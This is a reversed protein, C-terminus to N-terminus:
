LHRWHKTVIHTSSVTSPKEQNPRYPAGRPKPAPLKIKRGSATLRTRRLVPKEPQAPKQTNEESEQGDEDDDFPNYGRPPDSSKGSGEATEGVADDDDDDFPNYGAREETTTANATPQATTKTPSNPSEDSESDFPNYGEKTESIIEALRNTPSQPTDEDDDDFPNYAKSTISSETKNSKAEVELSIESKTKDEIEEVISIEVENEDQEEEDDFPNYGSKRKTEDDNETVFENDNKVALNVTVDDSATVHISGTSIKGYSEYDDTRSLDSVKKVTPSEDSENVKEVSESINEVIDLKAEKTKGKHSSSSSGHKRFLKFPKHKRHSAPTQPRTFHTKIQFLYTMMSLKDPVSTIAMTTPDLLRSIGVKEFGDFAQSTVM